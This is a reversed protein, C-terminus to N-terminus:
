QSKPTLQKELHFFPAAVNFYVGQTTGTKPDTGTILDYPGGDDKILAQQTEHLGLYALVMHEEGMSVVVFATKTSKGDGSTLLSRALGRAIELERSAKDTDGTQAFCDSRMVHVAGDTYDVKLLADSKEFVTKCDKAEAARWADNFLPRTDTGYPDYAASRVYAMRLATYDTDPDGREAKAVLDAYLPLPAEDAFAPGTVAFAVAAFIAFRIMIGRSRTM